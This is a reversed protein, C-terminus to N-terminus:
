KALAVDKLGVNRGDREDITQRFRAQHRRKRCACWAASSASVSKGGFSFDARRGAEARGCWARFCPESDPSQPPRHAPSTQAFLRTACTKCKLPPAQLRGMASM